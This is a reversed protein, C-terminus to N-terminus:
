RWLLLKLKRILDSTISMHKGHMGHGCNADGTLCPRQRGLSSGKHHLSLIGLQSTDKFFRFYYCSCLENTFLVNKLKNNCPLGQSCALLVMNQATTPQRLPCSLAFKARKPNGATERITPLHWSHHGLRLRCFEMSIIYCYLMECLNNSMCFNMVLSVWESFSCVSITKTQLHWWYLINKVGIGPIERKSYPPPPPPPPSPYNRSCCLLLQGSENVQNLVHFSVSCDLDFLSKRYEYKQVRLNNSAEETAKKEMQELLM